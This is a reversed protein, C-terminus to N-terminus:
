GHSSGMYHSLPDMRMRYQELEMSFIKLYRDLQFDSFVQEEIGIVIFQCLDEMELVECDEYNGSNILDRASTVSENPHNSM